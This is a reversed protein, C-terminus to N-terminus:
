SRRGRSRMKWRLVALAEAWADAAEAWADAAEAEEVEAAGEAAGEAGGAGTGLGAEEKEEAVLTSRRM